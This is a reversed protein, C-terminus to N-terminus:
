AEPLPPAVKAPTEELGALAIRIAEDLQPDRGAAHDQPAQVVEVDPDVGHNEVGM